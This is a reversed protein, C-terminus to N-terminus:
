IPTGCPAQDVRRVAIADAHICAVLPIENAKELLRNLDKIASHLDEIHSVATRPTALVMRGSYREGAEWVVPYNLASGWLTVQDPLPTIQAKLAKVAGETQMAIDRPGGVVPIQATAPHLVACGTAVIMAMIIKKFTDM